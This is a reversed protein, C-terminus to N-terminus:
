GQPPPASRRVKWAHYLFGFGVYELCIHIDTNNQRAGRKQVGGKRKPSDKPSRLPSPLHRPLNLVLHRLDPHRLPTCVSARLRTELEGGSRPAESRHRGTKPERSGPSPDSDCHGLPGPLLPASVGTDYAFLAPPCSPLKATGAQVNLLLLMKWSKRQQVDGQM